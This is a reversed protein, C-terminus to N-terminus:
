LEVSEIQTYPFQTAAAITRVIEIGQFVITM